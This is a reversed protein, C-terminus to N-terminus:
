IGTRSRGSNGMTRLSCRRRGRARRSGFSGAASRRRGLRSNWQFMLEHIGRLALLAKIELTVPKDGTLLSYSLCVTNEGKLLRLSKEITFGDGQYAWRPFPKVSFARLHTYGRPFVTGPYENNGLAFEGHPTWLTEEVHSLLVMRRVPPAMAGVLLGHYKRTNLGCVTSSAYGGLGNAVVWEREILGEFNMDSISLPRM